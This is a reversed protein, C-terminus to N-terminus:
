NTLYEPANLAIAVLTVPDNAAQQLVGASRTSWAGVGLLFGVADVRDGNAAARVASLDGTRALTMATQMRADAAATSLWAQGSPWGGVSPPYFPIQGLLRLAAVLKTVTADNTLPVKLARVAGILWEVPSLIISNQAAVFEPAALMASLMASLNRSAGYADVLRGLLEDGPPVSSALQGWMRTAVFRPCAAQGLVVDCYGGADLNATTGLFTKSGTDHLKPNMTTAGDPNIRWGTLARAGERVDNETYGSGHGLTFLEMFERSLNENPAKATNKEGDLWRLMAADTLMGYALAHFDGRGLTRLKENQALMLPAQRVKQASTAFHNHWLFTLKEGFPAEVAVMRRLWWATLTKLQDALQKNHDARQQKSANKGPAGTVPDFHPLPTARAGPDVTPDAAIIQRLYAQAGMRVAADVQTGTAGFGSRRVLRATTTWAANQATTSM